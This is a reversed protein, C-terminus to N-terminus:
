PFEKSYRDKCGSILENIYYANSIELAQAEESTQATSNTLNFLLNLKALRECSETKVSSNNAPCNLFLVAVFLLNLSRITKKM